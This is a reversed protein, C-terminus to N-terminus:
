GRGDLVTRMIATMRDWQAKEAALTRRGAPTLSYFRARRNDDTTGWSGRLCGRQELRMLSPYLTGMNLRLAGDSLQELRNATGPDAQQAVVELSSVGLTVLTFFFLSAKRLQTMRTWDEM